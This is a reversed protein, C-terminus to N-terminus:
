YIRGDLEAEIKKGDNTLEEVHEILIDRLLKGTSVRKKDKFFTCNDGGNAIYDNTAIYYTKSPDVKKGGVTINAARGARNIQMKIQSVPWGGNAAIHAFLQDLERGSMEIIVLTNDFPMLEFIRGKTVDGAPMEPIRLGGRNLVTMDITTNTYKRAEAQIADATWNGLTSELVIKNITLSKTSQGIVQNMEADVKDKYPNILDTIGSDEEKLEKTKYYKHEQKVYHNTVNCGVLISILTILFLSSRFNLLM